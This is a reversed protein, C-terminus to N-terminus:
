GPRVPPAQTKVASVIIEELVEEVLLHGKLLSLAYPNDEWFRELFRDKREQRDREFQDEM